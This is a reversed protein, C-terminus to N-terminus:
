CSREVALRMRPVGWLPLVESRTVFCASFTIFNPEITVFYSDFTIFVTESTLLVTENSVYENEIASGAPVTDPLIGSGNSGLASVIGVLVISMLLLFFLKKM